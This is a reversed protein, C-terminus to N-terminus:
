ENLFLFAKLDEYQFLFFRHQLARLLANQLDFARVARQKLLRIEDQLRGGVLRTVVIHHLLRLPQEGRRSERLFFPPKRKGPLVHENKQCANREAKHNKPHDGEKERSTLLRNM